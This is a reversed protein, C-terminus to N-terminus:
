DTTVGQLMFFMGRELRGFAIGQGLDEQYKALGKAIIEQLRENEAEMEDEPYTVPEKKDMLKLASNLRKADDPLIPALRVGAKIAGMQPVAEVLYMRGAELDAVLFDRNEARAWFLHEGPSCEYRIYDGGNFKGIYRDKDFFSFNILTGLNSPRVFFVVAKGEAPSSLSQASLFSIGFFVLGFAFAIHKM